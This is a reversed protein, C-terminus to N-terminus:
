DVSITPNALAYGVAVTIGLGLSGTSCYIKDSIDLNPHGGHKNFLYDADIDLYKEMCAYLALSSHGCSLIFIDDTKRKEFIDVLVPLCSLYSGIHSLKNTYSIELIRKKLDIM